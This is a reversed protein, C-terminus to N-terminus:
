ELVLKGKGKHLPNEDEKLFSAMRRITEKFELENHQYLLLFWCKQVTLGPCNTEFSAEIRSCQNLSDQFSGRPIYYLWIFGGLQLLKLDKRTLRYPHLPEVCKIGAGLNCILNYSTKSDEIELVVVKNVDAEFSACLALGLWAKDNYLNIPLPITM